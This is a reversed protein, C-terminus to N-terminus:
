QTPPEVINCHYTQGCVNCMQISGGDNILPYVNTSQCYICKSEYITICDNESGKAKVHMNFAENLYSMTNEGSFFCTAM